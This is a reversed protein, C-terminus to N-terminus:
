VEPDFNFGLGELDWFVNILLPVRITPQRISTGPGTEVLQTGVGGRQKARCPVLLHQRHVILAEHDRLREEM